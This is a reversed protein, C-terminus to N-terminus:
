NVNRRAKSLAEPRPRAVPAVSSVAQIGVAPRAASAPPPGLFAPVIVFAALLTFLLSLALLEGMSATGPHSSLWLSGFALGTVLASFFIARTLSSALMDVMGARWAVVYYIHFAVGVALMLPLAIINAFNLPLDILYAAELTMIAGLVLPGLALAVDLPRRLAVALIVFISVLAFLGAQIFARVIVRGAEATGIPAGTAQPAISQVAEAFRALVANDNSDGKPSVQIRARGDPAIWDAVLDPPLSARTVPETVSFGARLRGLLLAFDSMVAEQAAARRGPDSASLRDLTAALRRGAEGLTPVERLIAALSQLSEVIEADSPPPAVQDPRLVPALREAAARIIALKEEQDAPMFRALTVTGAVEPLAGLREALPGAAEFSPALVDITNPATQPDRALDLFTAVSEVKPSRLHMPNSDFPLKFLFPLGGIVLLATLGIVLRRHRAIWHDVTALAVTEVPEPEGRPRLVTILAPLLTLSALFAVIMGVGAILGLESVGRFETPLFSFFGALLSTAALTLSWGVRRAAARVSGALDDGRAHREARYRVALQIGFDVGLGVFLAAFGISILNFQGVMLLGLAATVILGAFTTALVAGILRGSRLALFLVLAIAAVMLSNNLAANEAVTAFEEDFIAAPGTLRVRFGLDPTLGLDTAITRILDSAAGAPQLAGFDLVPSVLVFRRLDRTTPETGAGLFQRWSLRAPEGALVKEFVVGLRQLAGGVREPTVAGFQAGQVALRMAGMLGRLSQDAAIPALFEKQGILDRTTQTLEDRSLFLLGNKDFFPGGDPRRVSDIVDSRTALAEALRGVAADAAEATPGDIVVAIFRVSQPFAKEFALENQRYASNGSILRATNTDIAFRTVAVYANVLTLLAAVAIVIWPRGTSLAVIREILSIL